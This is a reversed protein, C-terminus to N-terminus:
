GGKNGSLEDLRRQMADLQCRLEDIVDGAEPGSDADDAVAAPAEAAADGSEDANSEAGPTFASMAQEFVAMNRRSIEEFQSVPLIGDFANEIYKRIGAQNKAFSKMTVDLYRPVLGQLNDGYLGILQRLFEVSLLNQGKAEEEVIIQTLVSRTIDDGTRADRVVFEIGDRVMQALYELTVYNSTATNYLRRNAYKKVIIPSDSTGGDATGTEAM